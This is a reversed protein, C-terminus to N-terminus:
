KAMVRDDHGTVGKRHCRGVCREAVAVTPCGALRGGGRRVSVAKQCDNCRAVFPRDSMGVSVGTM